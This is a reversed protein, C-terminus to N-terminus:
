SLRSLEPELRYLAAIQPTTRIPHGLKSLQDISAIAQRFISAGAELLLAVSQEPSKVPEQGQSAPTKRVSALVLFGEPFRDDEVPIIAEVRLEPSGQFIRRSGSRIVTTKSDDQKM